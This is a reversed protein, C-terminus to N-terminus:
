SAKGLKGEEKKKGRLIKLKMNLPVPAPKNYLYVRSEPTQHVSEKIVWTSLMTGSLKKKEQVEGEEWGEGELLGWRRNNGEKQGLTRM